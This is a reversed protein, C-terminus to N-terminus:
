RRSGGLFLVPRAVVSGRDPYDIFGLSRLRSLSNVFGKSQLHGYGAAQAVEERPLAQPYADILPQLIRATAGGLLGVIREQVEQVSRPREPYKAQATGTNTLAVTGGSGYEALGGTRLSSLANIFGKSQLHTYGALLAVLERPPTTSGLVELEALADLIRQAVGSLQGDASPAVPRHDVTVSRAKIAQPRSAPMAQAVAAGSKVKGPIEAIAHAALHLDSAKDALQQATRKLTNAITELRTIQGDKLVPVEVREVKVQPAVAQPKRALETRLRALEAQLAKPDQAKAREITAAMQRKLADLDVDALNKPEVPKKGPEPTAGSDFTEIRLVKVREFIGDTTPWGPSWVWAEGTPLAPLSAMLTKREDETGHVDIWANLAELDQPAITRLAMLVQVQTLVNKNLVASRQTILTCGIGRQGGRRVIDEAAGLMREEGKQPKQPAIADAEDIVLMMPTRFQDRAKLRYLAELFGEQGGRPPMPGGMFQAVESKRFSSLDLVISVREEVVLKAVIEGGSPELNVDGREGGLIVVPFGPAKGDSSSRIGWWDGKPDVIVVQQGAKLLQEALRRATYSKGARRKALIGISQTVAELPLSLDASIRLKM